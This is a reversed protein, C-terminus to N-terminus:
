CIQSPYCYYSVPLMNGIESDNHKIMDCLRYKYLFIQYRHLFLLIQVFQQQIWSNAQEDQRDTWLRIEIRFLEQSLEKLIM